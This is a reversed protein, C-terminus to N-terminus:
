AESHCYLDPNEEIYLELVEKLNKNLEDLTEAQTHAGTIGPILGVFLKTQEDYEIYATLTKM